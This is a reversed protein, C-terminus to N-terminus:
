PNLTKLNLPKKGEDKVGARSIRGPMGKIPGIYDLELRTEDNSFIREPATILLEESYPVNPNFASKRVALCM